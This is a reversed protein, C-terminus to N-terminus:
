PDYTQEYADAYAESLTRGPLLVGTHFWSRTYTRPLAHEALLSQYPSPTEGSLVAARARMLELPEADAQEVFGFGRFERELPDWCGHEYRLTSVGYAFTTKEFTEIRTLVPACMPLRTLSGEASLMRTSPAYELFTQLGIGNDDRGLMGVRVDGDSGPFLDVVTVTPNATKPAFVLSATGRGDVRCLSSLGLSEFPPIAFSASAQEAFGDDQRLLIRAVGDDLIVLDAGGLGDVDFARIRRGDVAEGAIGPRTPLRSRPNTMSVASGFAGHGLCPWRTAVGHDLHLLDPLGDGSVDVLMVCADPDHLVALADVPMEPMAASEWGRELGEFRWYEPPAGAAPVVLADTRGDGDLDGWLM